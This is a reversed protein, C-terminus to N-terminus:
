TWAPWLPSGTWEKWLSHPAPHPRPVPTHGCDAESGLLQRSPSLGQIVHIVLAVRLVLDGQGTVETHEWDSSYLGCCSASGALCLAVGMWARVCPDSLGWLWDAPPWSALGLGPKLRSEQRM